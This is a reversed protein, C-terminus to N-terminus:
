KEGEKLEKLAKVLRKNQKPKGISIRVWKSSAGRFGSLNRIIIGEEQFLYNCLSGADKGLPEPSAMIFNAESPLTEFGIRELEEQLYERGECINERTKEVFGEDGLAAIAAKQGLRNVSFPPRVREFARVLESNTIGYGIRLGALGFMKSFTRLVILNEYDEVWDVISEGSFEVYAEDVVIVKGTDLLKELEDESISNSTPNNPRGIFAIRSDKIESTLKEGDWKYDDLKVFNLSMANSRCSLEYQSFTPIPILAEDGPDMTAKEVLDMVEDSGNGVCIQTPNVDIYDGIAEKLEVPNSEPYEGINSAEKKIAKVAEPSPGYPNENSCLKIFERDKEGSSEALPYSLGDEIMKQVRKSIM